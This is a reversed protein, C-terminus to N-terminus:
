IRDLMDIWRALQSLEQDNLYRPTEGLNKVTVPFKMGELVDASQKIPRALRSKEASAIYVALRHTPENHPPGGPMIAEVAAVARISDRNRFATLFAMTGGGEYGHAVIRTPDVQYTSGIQDLLRDVFETEGPTWRAPNASKPALLILNYLDCLPKWRALLDKWEFGGPAHLWVVVGCPAEPRYGEHVYAWAENSYEPIKLRTSGVRPRASESSEVSSSAPPLEEPPLDNPLQALVAKVQRMAGNRRVELRVETGPELSGIKEILGIRDKIPEGDLSVLVDGAEIGAEAAPSKPYVYRVAVGDRANSRMPLVGLFGHQFPELKAALQMERQLRQNGRLVTISVKDGAYRRGIETNVEAARTIPRGDIEVIEDGAQLGAETAPCKPLCAAIIPRGTYLNPGKLSIGALGSHLDEGKMLRPLARQVDEAHIAFGIGSDYWEMGAMQGTAKPSLPVLVGLVRGHIDILPGGYNNPSVAADTQIAKGWVRDLASLIGVAMNPQGGEFTRGVAIAWQGVRMEGRPAIEGVPLPKDVDIKLLVLMRAHDTAVLKAPKRTGDPLRVLISAPQAAFNFASSLIYGKPGVVLGTTPGTGFLKGEVRELGGLTEIQVVAPAIREVAEVIATQLQSDVDDSAFSPATLLCFAATLVLFFRVINTM